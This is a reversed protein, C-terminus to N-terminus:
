LKACFEGAGPVYKEIEAPLRFCAKPLSGTLDITGARIPKGGVTGSLSGSVGKSGISVALTANLVDPIKPMNAAKEELEDLENRITNAASRTAELTAEAADLTGQAATLVGQAATRLGFATERAAVVGAKYSEYGALESGLEVIKADRNVECEVANAAYCANREVLCAARATECAVKKANCSVQYWKCSYNCSSCSRCGSYDGSCNKKKQSNIQSNLSDIKKNVSTIEKDLVTVEATADNFADIANDLDAEAKDVAKQQKQEDDALTDLVKSREEIQNLYAALQEVDVTTYDIRVNASGTLQVDSKSAQGSMEVTLVPLKFGGEVLAGNKDVDVVVHALQVGEIEAAGQMLLRFDEPTEFPVNVLVSAGGSMHILTHVNM